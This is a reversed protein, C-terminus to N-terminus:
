YSIINFFLICNFYIINNGAIDADRSITNLLQLTDLLLVVEGELASTSSLFTEMIGFLFEFVLM